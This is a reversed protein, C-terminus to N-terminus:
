RMGFSESAPSMVINSMAATSFPGTKRDDYLMEHLIVAAQRSNKSAKRTLLRCKDPPWDQSIQSYTCTPPRSPEVWM